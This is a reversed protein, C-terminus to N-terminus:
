ITNDLWWCCVPRLNCIVLWARHHLHWFVKAEAVAMTSQWFLVHVRLVNIKESPNIGRYPLVVKIFVHLLLLLLLMSPNDDLDPGSSEARSAIPPSSWVPPCMPHCDRQDDAGALACPHYACPLSVPRALDRLRGCWIVHTATAQEIYLTNYKFPIINQPFDVYNWM